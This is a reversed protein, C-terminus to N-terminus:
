DSQVRHIDLKRLDEMTQYTHYKAVATILKLSINNPIEPNDLYVQLLRRTSSPDTAEEFFFLAIEYMSQKLPTNKKPFYSLWFIQWRM